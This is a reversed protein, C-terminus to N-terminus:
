IIEFVNFHKLIFTIIFTVVFSIGFSFLARWRYKETFKSSIKYSISYFFYGVVALFLGFLFYVFYSFGQTITSPKLVVMYIVFALILYFTFSYHRLVSGFDKKNTIIGFVFSFVLPLSTFFGIAISVEEPIIKLTYLILAIIIVTATSGALNVMRSSFSNIEKNTNEVFNDSEEM